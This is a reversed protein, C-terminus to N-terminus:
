DEALYMEAALTVKWSVSVKVLSIYKALLCKIVNSTGLVKRVHRQRYEVAKMNYM